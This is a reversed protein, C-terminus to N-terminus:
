HMMLVPLLAEDILSQTVGGFMHERFPGHGFGGVVLLDAQLQLATRQLRLRASGAKDNTVHVSASIGHWALQQSVDELAKPSAAGEEEISLLVVREAQSLFPLSAALARAAEPTEKWGVVVTNIEEPPAKEPALIIPRGSGMLISQILELPMYDRNHPRGLITIDSHRAYFMLHSLAAGTEQTWSASIGSPGTPDTHMRITRGGCFERYQELAKASLSDTDRRLSEVADAIAPGCAWDVHPARAAAEAPAVHVHLFRMHADFRKAIAFATAFVRMDTDSGSAPVFVTKIM